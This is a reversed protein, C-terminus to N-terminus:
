ASEGVPWAAIRKWGSPIIEAPEPNDKFWPEPAIVLPDDEKSLFAGWWSLSSNAMVYGNMNRMAELTEAARGDFNPVITTIERYEEPIFLLAEKPEDSFLAILDYEYHLFQESISREYYRKDPIGFGGESKYDGLRVHVMLARKESISALFDTLGKSPSILNISQLSEFVEPSSAWRYSQFYGILFERNAEKPLSFYGNNTAQVIKIPSLFYVSFIMSSVLRLVKSYCSSQEITTPSLGHRLVYGAVKKPFFNGFFPFKRKATILETSFSFDFIDPDGHRNVRPVGLSKEVVISLNNRTMAAAIQFLQNGLGGTLYVYVNSQM